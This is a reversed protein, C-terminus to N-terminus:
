KHPTGPVPDSFPGFLSDDQALTLPNNHTGAVSEVAHCFYCTVGKMKPPVSDLNLGDTTMGTRVAMPAHCKVCFDGLAGSTERQARQNMARFVPDESAYAHMSGSWEQYAVPHCTKCAEPDLLAERDLPVVPKADGGCAAQLALAVLVGAITPSLTRVAM